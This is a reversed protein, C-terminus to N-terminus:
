AAGPAPSRAFNFRTTNRGLQERGSVLAGGDKGMKRWPTRPRARDEFRLAAKGAQGASSVRGTALTAAGTQPLCRKRCVAVHFVKAGRSEDFDAGSERKNRDFGSGVRPHM